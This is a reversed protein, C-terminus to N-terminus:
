NCILLLQVAHHISVVNWAFNVRNESSWCIFVVQSPPPPIWQATDLSHGSTTTNSHICGLFDSHCFRVDFHFDQVDIVFMLQTVSLCTVYSTHWYKTLVHLEDRFYAAKELSRFLHWNGVPIRRQQSQESHSRNSSESWISSAEPASFCGPSIELMLYVKNNKKMKYSQRNTQIQFQLKHCAM